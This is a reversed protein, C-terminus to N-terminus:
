GILHKLVWSKVRDTLKSHRGPAERWKNKPCSAEPMTLKISLKSRATVGCGCGRCFGVSDALDKSDFRQECARCLDARKNFEDDTVPGYLQLSMEATVYKKVNSVTIETPPDPVAQKPSEQEQRLRKAAEVSTDFPASFYSNKSIM